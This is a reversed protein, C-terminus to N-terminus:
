TSGVWKKNREKPHSMGLRCWDQSLIWSFNRTRGTESLQVRAKKTGADEEQFVKPKSQTSQAEEAPNPRQQLKLRPLDLGAVNWLSFPALFIVLDTFSRKWPSPGDQDPPWTIVRAIRSWSRTCSSPRRACRGCRGACIGVTERWTGGRGAVDRWTGGGAMSLSCCTATAASGAQQLRRIRRIRQQSVDTPDRQESSPRAAAASGSGAPQAANVLRVQCDLVSRFNPSVNCSLSQPIHHIYIYIYLYIYIHHKAELLPKLHNHSTEPLSAFTILHPSTSGCQGVSAKSRLFGSNM